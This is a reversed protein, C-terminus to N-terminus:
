DKSIWIMYIILGIGFVIVVIAILIWYDLYTWSTNVM